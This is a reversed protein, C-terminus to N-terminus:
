QLVDRMMRYIEFQYDGQALFLEEDNSLDNYLSTKDYTMRSLTYDIITIQVGKSPLTVQKGHLCYLFQTTSTTQLLINGWHLDRHEFQFAEEAVALTMIIQFVPYSFFM